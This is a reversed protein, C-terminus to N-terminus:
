GVSYANGVPEETTPEAALPLRVTVTTGHGLASKITIKGQHADIISKAIALGLGAGKSVKMRAKEGRYFRDFVHPLEAPEIGPGLDQITVVACSEATNLSLNVQGSRPAYRIANDLIVVFVQKLRRRDGKVLVSSSSSHLALTLCSKEALVGTEECVDRLLQDLTFLSVELRTPASETRAFLLLDDVLKALQKAMEVIRNLASKYEEIPKDRGRLTVEAEGRIATLPTRLEHSVDAFFSKRANDLRRLQQNAKDLEKTREQVKHELTASAHLLHARQRDLVSAMADFSMALRSFERTGTLQIRYGLDGSSLKQTGNVLEDVQNQLRRLLFWGMGAIFVIVFASTLVAALTLRQNFRRDRIKVMAMESHEDRIAEDIIAGFDRDITEKLLQSLQEQAEANRGETKLKKISIFSERTLDVLQRLRALRQREEMEEERDDADIAQQIERETLAKLHTLSQDLNQQTTRIAVQDTQELVISDVLQKFYRSASISLHMYGQLAENASQGREFYQQHRNANWVWLGVLLAMIILLVSYIVVLQGRLTNLM